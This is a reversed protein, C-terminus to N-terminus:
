GDKVVSQQVSGDKRIYMLLHGSQYAKRRWGVEWIAEPQQCQLLVSDIFFNDPNSSKSLENRAIKLAQEIPLMPICNGTVSASPYKKAQAFSSFLSCTIVIFIVLAQRM